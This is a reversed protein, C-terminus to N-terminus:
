RVKLSVVCTGQTDITALVDGTVRVCPHTLLVHCVNMHGRKCAQKLARQARESPDVRPDSILVRVVESHGNKSAKILAYNGLASPDVSQSDFLLVLHQLLLM